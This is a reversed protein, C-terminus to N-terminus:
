SKTAKNTAAGCTPCVNKPMEAALWEMGKAPALPKHTCKNM